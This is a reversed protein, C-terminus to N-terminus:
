KKDKGKSKGKDKELQGEKGEKRQAKAVKASSPPSTESALIVTIHSTRKRMLSAAGKARIITRRWRPGEDVLASKVLLTNEDIDGTQTSNALASHLVKRLIKAGKKNSFQLISLAENVKKGQVFKSIERVKKPL